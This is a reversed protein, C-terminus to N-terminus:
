VTALVNLPFFITRSACTPAIFLEAAVGVLKIPPALEHNFEENITVTNLTPSYEGEAIVLQGLHIDFGFFPPPPPM